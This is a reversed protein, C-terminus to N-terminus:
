SLLFLVLLLFITNNELCKTSFDEVMEEHNYYINFILCAERIVCCNGVGYDFNVDYSYGKKEYYDAVTENKDSYYHIVKKDKLHLLSSKNGEIVIVFDKETEMEKEINGNIEIYGFDFYNHYVESMHKSTFSNKLYNYIDSNMNHKVLQYVTDIKDVDEKSELKGKIKEILINRFKEEVNKVKVIKSKNDQMEIVNNNYYNEPSIVMVEENDSIEPLPTDLFELMNVKNKSKNTYKYNQRFIQFLETPSIINYFNVIKSNETLYYNLITLDDLCKAHYFYPNYGVESDLEELLGFNGNKVNRRYYNQAVKNADNIMKIFESEELDPKARAMLRTFIQITLFYEELAQDFNHLAKERKYAEQIKVIGKNIQPSIYPIYYLEQPKELKCDERLKNNKLLACNVIDKCSMRDERKYKLMNTLLEKLELAEQSSFKKESNFLKIKEEIFDENIEKITQLYSSTSYKKFTAGLLCLFVIGLSWIDAKNTYHFRCDKLDKKNLLAEFIEPPTYIKNVLNTSMIGNEINACRSAYGFDGIYAEYDGSNNKSYLINELSIDLHLFNNDHLCKLGYLSSVLIRKFQYFPLNKTNLKSLNNEKLEMAIGKGLNTELIPDYFSKILYPSRLRLLIDLEIYRLEKPNVIKVAMNVGDKRKAKYINGFNGYGINDLLTISM